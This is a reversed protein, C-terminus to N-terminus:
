LSGWPNFPGWPWPNPKPKPKPGPGPEPEPEPEESAPCGTQEVVCNPFIGSFDYSGQIATPDEFYDALEEIETPCEGTDSAYAVTVTTVTREEVQCAETQGKGALSNFNPVVIASIVGLIAIVIVLEILTFGKEGKTLKRM